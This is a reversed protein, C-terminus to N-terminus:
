AAEAAGFLAADVPALQEGLPQQGAGEGFSAVGGVLRLEPVQRAGRVAQRDATARGPKSAVGAAELRRRVVAPRCASLITWAAREDRDQSSVARLRAARGFPEGGALARAVPEAGLTTLAFGLGREAIEGARLEYALRLIEAERAARRSGGRRRRANQNTTKTQQAEREFM